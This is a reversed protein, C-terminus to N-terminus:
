YRYQNACVECLAHRGEAHLEHFIHQMQEASGDPRDLTSPPKVIEQAATQHVGVTVAPQPLTDEAMAPETGLMGRPGPRSTAARLAVAAVAASIVIALQVNRWLRNRV